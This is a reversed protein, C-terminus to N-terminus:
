LWPVIAWPLLMALLVIRWRMEGPLAGLDKREYRWSRHIYREIWQRWTETMRASDDADYQQYFEGGIQVTRM